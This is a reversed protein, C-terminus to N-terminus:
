LYQVLSQHKAYFPRALFFSKKFINALITSIENITGIWQTVIVFVCYLTYKADKIKLHQLKPFSLKFNNFKM